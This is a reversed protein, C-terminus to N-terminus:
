MFRAIITISANVDIAVFLHAFPSDWPAGIARLMRSTASAEWNKSHFDIAM